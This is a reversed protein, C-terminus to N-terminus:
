PVQMNSPLNPFTMDQTRVAAYQHLLDKISSAVQVQTVCFTFALGIDAALLKNRTVEM